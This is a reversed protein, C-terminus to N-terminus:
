QREIGNKGGNSCMSIHNLSLFRDADIAAICGQGASIVVQRYVPNCVDGAAFVGPISTASSTKDIIIYGNEDLKLQGNFISTAPQHGIAIFVGDITKKTETHTKTHILLLETVKNGDGFIDIVKTNWMIKIKSNELLRKQMIQEACLKDGRHILVVSRAFNTLYIAEEM